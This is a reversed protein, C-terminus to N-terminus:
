LSEDGCAPNEEPTCYVPGADPELGDTDAFECAVVERFGDGQLGGGCHPCAYQDPDPEQGPTESAGACIEDHFHDKVRGMDKIREIDNAGGDM